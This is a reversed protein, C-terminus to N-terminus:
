IHKLSRDRTWATFFMKTDRQISVATEVRPHHRRAGVEHKGYKSNVICDIPSEVLRYVLGDSRTKLLKAVICLCPSGAVVPNRIYVMDPTM